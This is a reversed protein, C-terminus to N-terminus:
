SDDFHVFRMYPWACAPPDLLNKGPFAIMQVLALQDRLQVGGFQSRAAIECGRLNVRGNM